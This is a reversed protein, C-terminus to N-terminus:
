EAYVTRLTFRPDYHSIMTERGGDATNVWKWHPTGKSALYSIIYTPLDYTKGPELTQKFDIVSDSVYVSLPNGPQDVRGFVIREKPHLDVPCPKIPYKCEKLRKNAARARENYMRYERLSTLPMEEIAVPDGELATLEEMTKKVM